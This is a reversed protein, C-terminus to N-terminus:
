FSIDEAPIEVWELMEESWLFRSGEKEPKEIPSVWEWVEDNWIWSAFPRPGRFEDLEKNYTGEVIAQHADKRKTIDVVTPNSLFIAAFRSDAALVQQVVGDIIFALYHSPINIGKGSNDPIQNNSHSEM